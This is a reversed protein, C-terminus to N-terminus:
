QLVWSLRCNVKYFLRSLSETSNRSRGRTAPRPWWVHKIHTTSIMGLGEHRTLSNVVLSRGVGDGVGWRNSQLGVMSDEAVM